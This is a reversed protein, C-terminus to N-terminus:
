SNHSSPHPVQKHSTQAGEHKGHQMQRQNGCCEPGNSLLRQRKRLMWPVPELVKGLLETEGRSRHCAQCLVLLSKQPDTRLIPEETIVTGGYRLEGGRLAQAANADILHENRRTAVEPHRGIEPYPPIDAASELLQM